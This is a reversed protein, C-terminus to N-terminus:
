SRLYDQLQRRFQPQRLRRLAQAEIQRVRERTVGLKKGVEGLTHSKGDHLGYRLQLIRVERPPLTNLVERLHERMIKETVKDAPAPLLKDPTYDGLEHDEDDDAPLELSLPRQAVQLLEEVKKPTVNLTEALEDVSPERGLQQTLKHSFRRLRNIQDGMHVPVRITRGQDAVCRSIAQRIWWTAYTSFRFGRRYDFKKTARILGINGEQILDLFPVGRGVYKKSVSIVLRFNATIIHERAAWGDEVSRVLEVSTQKSVPGDALIARAERGAEIRKSLSIEEDHTLLPVKSVEQLYLAVPDNADPAEHLQPDPKGNKNSSRAEEEDAPDLLAQTGDSSTQSNEIENNEVDDLDDDDVIVEYQKRARNLLEELPVIGQTELQWSEDFEGNKLYADNKSPQEDEARNVKKTDSSM